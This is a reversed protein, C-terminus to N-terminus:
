RSNGKLDVPRSGITHRQQLAADSEFAAAWAKSRALQERRKAKWWASEAQSRRMPGMLGQAAAAEVANLAQSALALQQQATHSENEAADMAQWAAQVQALAKGQVLKLMARAQGLKARAAAVEGESRNFIPLPVTANLTARTVGQDRVAGPAVRPVPGYRLAQTLQLAAARANVQEWAARVDARDSLSADLLRARIEQPIHPAAGQLESTDITVEALAQPSVGLAAALQAQALNSAAEAAAQRTQEDALRQEAQVAQAGSSWGLKARRQQLGAQMASRSTIQEQARLQQQTSWYRVYAKDVRRRIDWEASKLLARAARQGARAYQIDAARQPQSMLMLGIAAGVTWPSMGELAPATQYKLGLQLEPNPWERAVQLKAQALEVDAQSVAHEPHLYLSAWELDRRRWPTQADPRRGTTHEIFDLVDRDTLRRSQLM